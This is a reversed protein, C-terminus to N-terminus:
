TAAIPGCHLYSHRIRLWPCRIEITGGPCLVRVWEQLIEQGTRHSFHKIVHSSYLYDFTDDEFPLDTASGAVNVPEIARADLGVAGPYKHEGCGVDLVRDEPAPEPPLRSIPIM